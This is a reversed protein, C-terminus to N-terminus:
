PYSLVLLMPTHIIHFGKGLTLPLLGSGAPLSHGSPRMILQVGLGFNFGAPKEIVMCTEAFRKHLELEISIDRDTESPVPRRALISENALSSNLSPFIELPTM